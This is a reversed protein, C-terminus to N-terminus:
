GTARLPSAALCHSRRAELTGLPSKDRVCGIALAWGVNRMSIHSIFRRSNAYGAPQQALACGPRSECGPAARSSAHSPQGANPASPPSLAALPRRAPLSRAPKWVLTNRPAVSALSFALICGTYMTLPPAIGARGGTLPAASPCLRNAPRMRAGAPTLQGCSGRADSQKAGRRGEKGARPRQQGRGPEATRM